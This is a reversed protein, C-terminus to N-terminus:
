HLSSTFCYLIRERERNVEHDRALLLRLVNDYGNHAVAQLLNIYKRSAENIFASGQFLMDAVADHGAYTAAQLAKGVGLSNVDIGM